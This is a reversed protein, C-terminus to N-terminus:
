ASAQTITDCRKLVIGFEGSDALTEYLRHVRMETLGLVFLSDLAVALSEPTFHYRMVDIQPTSLDREYYAQISDRLHHLFTPDSASEYPRTGEGRWHQQADASSQLVSNEVLSRMTQRGRPFYFDELIDAITTEEAINEAGFRKDPVIVAYYGGNVVIRSVDQLHRVLDTLVGLVNASVVMSFQSDVWSLKGSSEIYDITVPQPSIVYSLENAKQVLGDWDAIDFYKAKPSRILPNIFPGIELVPGPLVSIIEKNIIARLNQGRSCTYGRDKGFTLYHNLDEKYLHKYLIPDFSEPFPDLFGEANGCSLKLPAWRKDDEGTALTALERSRLMDHHGTPPKTIRSTRRFESLHTGLVTPHLQESSDGRTTSNSSFDYLHLKYLTVLFAFNFASFFVYRFIWVPWSLVPRLTRKTIEFDVSNTPDGM